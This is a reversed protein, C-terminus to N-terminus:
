VWHVTKMLFEIIFFYAFSIIVVKSYFLIYSPWNISPPAYLEECEKIGDSEKKRFFIGWAISGYIYQIFDLVMACFVLLIPYYLEKPIQYAGHIDQSKFIWIIGIASIALTRVNDSVKGTNTYHAERYNQLNSM